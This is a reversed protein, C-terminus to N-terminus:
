LLEMKPVPGPAYRDFHPKRNCSEIEEFEVGIEQAGLRRAAAGNTAFVVAWGDIGDHVQYAKIQRKM